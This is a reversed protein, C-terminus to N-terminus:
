VFCAVAFRIKRKQFLFVCHIYCIRTKSSLIPVVCFIQANFYGRYFDIPSLCKCAKLCQDENALETTNESQTKRHFVIVGLTTQLSQPPHGDGAPSRSSSHPLTPLPQWEQFIPTLWFQEARNRLLLSFKCHLHCLNKPLFGSTLDGVVVLLWTSYEM